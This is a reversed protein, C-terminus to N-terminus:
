QRKAEETKQEIEKVAKEADGEKDEFKSFEAAIANLEGDYKKLLARNHAVAPDADAQQASEARSKEYNAVLDAYMKKTDADKAEDLAKKAQQYAQDLSANMAESMKEAMAAGSAALVQEKVWLYEQTNYGLDKAARIDATLMDAVSGLGKFGEM